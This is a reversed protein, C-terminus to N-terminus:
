TKYALVRLSLNSGFFSNCMISLVIRRSFAVSSSIVFMHWYGLAILYMLCDKGAIKM